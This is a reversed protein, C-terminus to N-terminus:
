IFNILENEMLAVAIRGEIPCQPSLAAAHRLALVLSYCYELLVESPFKPHSLILDLPEYGFYYYHIPNAYVATIWDMLMVLTHSSIHKMKVLRQHLEIASRTVLSITPQNLIMYGLLLEVMDESLSPFGELMLEILALKLEISWVTSDKTQSSDLSSEGLRNELIEKLAISGTWPDTFEENSAKRHRFLEEKIVGFLQEINLKNYHPTLSRRNPRSVKTKSPSTM